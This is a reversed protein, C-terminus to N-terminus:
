RYYIAITGGNLITVQWDRWQVGTGFDQVPDAGVFDVPTDGFALQNSSVSADTIVFQAGGGPDNWVIKTVQIPKGITSSLVGLQRLTAWFSLPMPATIIIPKQNFNSM